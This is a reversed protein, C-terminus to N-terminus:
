TSTVRQLLQAASQQWSLWPMQASQPAHGQANLTLWTHMATQLAGPTHDAFYLAHEGAVEKFVPIDRILLPIKRQAAEILPLGFGEGYSASILCDAHDYIQALYEDSIGNLWFLRQQSEPHEVLEKALDDVKWGRKGVIILNFDAGSEWLGKAAEFAEAHGKRPELTGVMVFTPRQSLQQLTYMADDPLGQSPASGEIDAGMHFWDVRPHLQPAHQARWQEFDDAVARSICLLGDSRACLGIWQTHLEDTGDPFFQPMTIPLLDYVVFRVDVGHNRMQQLFPEQALHVHHQLDLAVFVDGHAYDIPADLDNSLQPALDSFGNTFTDAYFYGQRGSTACVARVEYMEPPHNLWEQLISRVVRQIGTKADRQVLESIDVLLQRKNGRTNRAMAQALALLNVTPDKALLTSLAQIQDFPAHPTPQAHACAAEMARLTKLATADWTFHRAQQLAHARLADFFAQDNLAEAIKQAIDAPDHPNFLARDWGIVEPISSTNAGLTAAGCSMAELVPLGFGEHWSPFVFLTCQNYLQVMDEDSIHGTIVLSNPQLKCASAEAQFQARHHDPLQGALVLQYQDRLNAPLLGFARILGLHNKRTDTASVYMLYPKQIGLRQNLGATESTSYTRLRFQEDAASSITVVKEAAIDFHAVVEQGSSASIALVLDASPIQQSRQRYFNEYAPNPRLYTEKYIYPIADYFTMAVLANHHRPLLDTIVNEQFGEFLSSVLFIDPAVQRIVENRLETAIQRRTSDEPQGADVPALAHWVHINDQPLYASFADRVHRIADPLMGNLLLFVEHAERNRAIALAHSLTYRGIGRHRSTSQAGQVDILIRM